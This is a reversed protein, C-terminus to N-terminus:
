GPILFSLIVLIALGGLCLGYLILSTDRHRVAWHDPFLAKNPVYTDSEFLGLAKETDIVAQKAQAHRDKQQRIHYLSLATFIIVGLVLFWQTTCGPAVFSKLPFSLVLLILLFGSSTAAVTMMKERRLYVERKFIPYLMRLTEMRQSEALVGKEKETEM